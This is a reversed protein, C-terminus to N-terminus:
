EWLNARTPNLSYETRSSQFQAQCFHGSDDNCTSDKVSCLVVVGSSMGRFWPISGYWPYFCHKLKTQGQYDSYLQKCNVCPILHISPWVHTHVIYSDWKTSNVLCIYHVKRSCKAVSISYEIPVESSSHSSLVRFVLFQLQQMVASYKTWAPWYM